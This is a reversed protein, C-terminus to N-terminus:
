ASQQRDAVAAMSSTDEFSYLPTELNQPLTEYWRQFAPSHWSKRRKWWEAIGPSGRSGTLQQVITHWHEDDLQGRRWQVYSSEYYRFLITTFAFFRVREDPELSDFQEGALRWIRAFSADDVISSTIQHYIASHAQSAAARVALSNQRLQVGVFILSAVVAVVGVIQSLYSAQELSM